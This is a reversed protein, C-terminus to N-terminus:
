DPEASTAANGDIDGNRIATIPRWFGHAYKADFVAIYADATAISVLAHLRAKDILSRNGAQAIQAEGIASSLPM